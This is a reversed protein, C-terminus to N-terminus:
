HKAEPVDVSLSAHKHDCVFTALFKVPEKDSANASVVHVGNAAEYFTEGAKYVAEAEGKVQTRYRGEIIYGIVPCPHSHPTSFEGPGYTVEVMTVALNDGNMRPLGHALAVRDAEARSAAAHARVLCSGAAVVFLIVLALGSRKRNPTMMLEESLSFHFHIEV